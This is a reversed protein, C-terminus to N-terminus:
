ANTLQQRYTSPSHGTSQRFWRLFAQRSSFGLRQATAEATLEQQMLCEHALDLRVEHLLDRYSCGQEQLRRHLHRTSLGLQQALMENTPLGEVLMARILQQVAEKLDPTLQRAKLANEAHLELLEKIFANGHRMPVQLLRSPILLSTRAQDFHVPTRFFTFYGLNHDANSARSHSFNVRLLIPKQDPMLFRMIVTIAGLVYERAQRRFAEGGSRCDWCIELQGPRHIIDLEGINSLLGHFREAMKVVSGFTSCVQAIQGLPGLTAPQIDNALHLGVLPVTYRSQLTVLMAELAEVPITRNADSLESQTLGAEELWEDMSLGMAQGRSVIHQLHTISIWNLSPLKPLM